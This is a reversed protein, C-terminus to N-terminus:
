SLHSQSRGSSTTFVVESHTQSTTFGYGWPKYQVRMKEERTCEGQEAEWAGHVFCSQGAVGKQWPTEAKPDASWASFERSCHAM